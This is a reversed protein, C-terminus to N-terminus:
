RCYETGTDSLASQFRLLGALKGGDGKGDYNEDDDCFIVKKMMTVREEFENLDFSSM